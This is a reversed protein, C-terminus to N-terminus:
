IIAVANTKKKNGYSAIDQQIREITKKVKGERGDIYMVLEMCRVMRLPTGDTLRFIELNVERTFENPNTHLPDVQELYEVFDRDLYERAELMNNRIIVMRGVAIISNM